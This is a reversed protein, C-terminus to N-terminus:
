DAGSHITWVCILRDSLAPKSKISLLLVTVSLMPIEHFPDWFFTLTLAPPDLFSSDCRQKKFLSSLCFLLLPLLM